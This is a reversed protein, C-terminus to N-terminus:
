VAALAGAADVVAAVTAVLADLTFGGADSRWNPVHVFLFPCVPDDALAHLTQYALHNCVFAGASLSVRVPLSTQGELRRTITGVDVTAFYAPPGDPQIAVGQPQNGGNDPIRFDDFNKAVKELRVVPEPGAEGLALALAPTPSAALRAWLREAAAGRVVPLTLLEIRSDQHALRSAVALSANM